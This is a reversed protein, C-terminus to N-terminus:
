IVKEYMAEYFPQAQKYLPVLDDPLIRSSTKQKAFGTSRHVNTYWHKAWVGDEPIAGAQWSLMNQDFPISLKECLRMLVKEPNKLVENSDMVFVKQGKTELYQLLQFQKEVGIDFMTPNPIVQAFSAILQKPNRILLVNKFALNYAEDGDLIHHAMNKIFLVSHNAVLKDQTLGEWVQQGNTSMSQIIEDRGPHQKGTKQLYYAYLPEDVVQTDARNAFSYMLATSINRPSSILNIRIPM